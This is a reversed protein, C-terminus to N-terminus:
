KRELRFEFIRCVHITFFLFVKCKLATEQYNKAKLADKAEKLLAKLEKPDM